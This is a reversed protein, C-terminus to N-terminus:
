CTAPALCNLASHRTSTPHPPTHDSDSSYYFGSVGVAATFRCRTPDGANCAEEDIEDNSAAVVVSPAHADIAVAPENQKNQSFPAPPSGNSVLVDSRTIAAAGTAGGLLALDAAFVGSVRRM